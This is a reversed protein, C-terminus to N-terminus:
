YSSCTSYCVQSRCDPCRGEVEKVVERADVKSDFHFCDFGSKCIYKIRDLTDGCIHLAMKEQEVAASISLIDLFHLYFIFGGSMEILLAVLGVRVRKDKNQASIAAKTAVRITKAPMPDSKSGPSYPLITTGEMNPKNKTKLMGSSIKAILSLVSILSLACHM